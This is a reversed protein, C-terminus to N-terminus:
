DVARAAKRITITLRWVRLNLTITVHIMELGYGKGLIVM